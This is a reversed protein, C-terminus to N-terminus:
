LKYGCSFTAQLFINHTWNVCTKSIMQPTSNLPSMWKQMQDFNFDLDLGPWALNSLNMKLEVNEKPTIDIMGLTTDLNHFIQPQKVIMRGALQPNDSYITFRFINQQVSTSIYWLHCPLKLYISSRLLTVNSMRVPKDVFQTTLPLCSSKFDWDWRLTFRLCLRIIRVEWCRLKVPSPWALSHHTRGGSRM